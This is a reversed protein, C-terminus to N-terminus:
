SGLKPLCTLFKRSIKKKRSACSFFLCFIAFDGLFMDGPSRFAGSAFDGQLSRWIRSKVQGTKSPVSGDLFRSFIYKPIRTHHPVNQYPCQAIQIYFIKQCKKSSISFTHSEIEDYLKRRERLTRELLPHMSTNSDSHNM